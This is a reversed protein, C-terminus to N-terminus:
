GPPISHFVLCPSHTKVSEGSKVRAEKNVLDFGVSLLAAYAIAFIELTM